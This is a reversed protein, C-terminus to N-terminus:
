HPQLNNHPNVLNLVLSVFEIAFSCGPKRIMEEENITGNKTCSPFLMYDPLLHLVILRKGILSEDSNDGVNIIKWAKVRALDKSRQYTSSRPFCQTFEEKILLPFTNMLFNLKIFKQSFNIKHKDCVSSPACFNRNMLKSCNMLCDSLQGDSYLVITFEATHSTDNTNSIDSDEVIFDVTCGGRKQFYVIIHDYDIELDCSGRKSLFNFEHMDERGAIRSGDSLIVNDAELKHKGRGVEIIRTTTSEVLTLLGVSYIVFVFTALLMSVTKSSPM